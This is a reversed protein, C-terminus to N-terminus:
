YLAINGDAPPVPILSLGTHTRIPQAGYAMIGTLKHHLQQLSDTVQIYQLCHQPDADAHIWMIKTEHIKM